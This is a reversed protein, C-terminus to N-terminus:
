QTVHSFPFTRSPAARRATCGRGSRACLGGRFGHFLVTRAPFLSVPSRPELEADGNGAEIRLNRVREEAKKREEEIGIALERRVNEDGEAQVGVSRQRLDGLRNEVLRNRQALLETALRQSPVDSLFKATIQQRAESGGTSRAYV